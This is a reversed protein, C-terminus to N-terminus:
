TASTPVSILRKGEAACRAAHTPRAGPPCCGSRPCVLLPCWSVCPCCTPAYHAQAIPAHPQALSPSSCPLATGDCLLWVLCSAPKPPPPECASLSQTDHSQECLVM